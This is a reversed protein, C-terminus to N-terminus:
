VTVIAKTSIRNIVAELLTGVELEAERIKYIKKIEEVKSFKSIETIDTVCGKIANQVNEVSMEDLIVILAEKDNDEIGFMKLSDAIKKNPSMNFIIESYVSRTKMTQDLKANVALQTAVLVQFPDLIYRPKLVACQLSVDMIKARIESGNQLDTYFLLVPQFNSRSNM